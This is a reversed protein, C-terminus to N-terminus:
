SPVTSTTPPVTSGRDIPTPLESAAFGLALGLVLVALVMLPWFILVLPGANATHTAMLIFRSIPTEAGGANLFFDHDYVWALLGVIAGAILLWRAPLMFQYFILKSGV